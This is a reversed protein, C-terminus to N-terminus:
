RGRRRTEILEAYALHRDASYCVINGKHTKSKRLRGADALEIIARHAVTRIVEPETSVSVVTVVIDPM